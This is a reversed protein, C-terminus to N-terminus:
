DLYRQQLFYNYLTQTIRRGSNYPNDGVGNCHIGYVTYTESNYIPAGSQGKATDISYHLAETSYGYLDSSDKYMYVKKGLIGSNDEVFKDTPYGCVTYNMMSLQYDYTTYGILLRGTTDAIDASFKVVAWDNSVNNEDEDEESYAACIDWQSAWRVSEYTTGNAGFYAIVNSAGYVAHAATLLYKDGIVFGTAHGVGGNPFQIYLYAIASYPRSTVSLVKERTDRNGIISYTSRQLNVNENTVVEDSNTEIQNMPSLDEVDSIDLGYEGTKANYTLVDICETKEYESVNVTGDSSEFCGYVRYNTDANIEGECIVNVAFSVTEGSAIYENVESSDIYKVRQKEIIEVKDNPLITYDAEYVIFWEKVNWSSTNRLTFLLVDHNDGHSVEVNVICDKLLYTEVEGSGNIEDAEIQM